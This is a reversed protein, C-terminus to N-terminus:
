LKEYLTGAAKRYAIYSLYLQFHADVKNVWAEQQPANNKCSALGIIASIALFFVKKM